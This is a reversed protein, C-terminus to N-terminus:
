CLRDDASAAAWVVGKDDLLDPKDDLLDPHCRRQVPVTARAQQKAASDM